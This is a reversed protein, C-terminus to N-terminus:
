ELALQIAKMETFLSLEDERDAAEKTQFAVCCGKVKLTKGCHPPYMLSCLVSYKKIQCNTIYHPRRQM